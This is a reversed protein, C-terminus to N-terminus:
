AQQPAFPWFAGLYAIYDRINGDGLGPLNLHLGLMGGVFAIGFVVANIILLVRLVKPLFQFPRM